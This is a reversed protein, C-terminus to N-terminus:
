KFRVSCALAISRLNKTINLFIPTMLAHLDLQRCFCLDLIAFDSNATMENTYKRFELIMCLKIHFISINIGVHLSKILKYSQWLFVDACYSSVVSEPM